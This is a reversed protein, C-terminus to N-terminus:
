VNITGARRSIFRIPATPAVEPADRERTNFDLVLIGGPRLCSSVQQVMLVPDEVHDTANRTFAFDYSRAGVAHSLEEAAISLERYCRIGPLSAYGHREVVIRYMDLLPDVGTVRFLGQLVGWRLVSIPGCGIDLAELPRGSRNQRLTEVYPLVCKPFLQECNTQSLYQLIYQSYQTPQGDWENLGGIEFDHHAVEQFLALERPDAPSPYASDVYALGRSSCERRVAKLFDERTSVVVVVQCTASVQRQLAGPQLLDSEVWITDLSIWSQWVTLLRRYEAEAIGTQADIIVAVNVGETSSERSVRLNFLSRMLINM